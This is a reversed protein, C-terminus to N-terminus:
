QFYQFNAVVVVQEQIFASYICRPSIICSPLIDLKLTMSVWTMNSFDSDKRNIKKCMYKKFGGQCVPDVAVNKFSNKCLVCVYQRLFTEWLSGTVQKRAM